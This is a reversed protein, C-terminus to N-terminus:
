VHHCTKKIKSIHLAFNCKLFISNISCLPFHASLWVRNSPFYLLDYLIYVINRTFKDCKYGYNVCLLKKELEICM